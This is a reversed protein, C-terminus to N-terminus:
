VHKKSTNVLTIIQTVDNGIRQIGFDVLKQDANELNLNLPVGEGKIQIDISHLGNNIDLAIRESYQMIDRPTFTIPVSLIDDENVHPLLVQGPVLNIDLHPQKQYITDISM